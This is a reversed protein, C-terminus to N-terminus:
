SQNIIFSENVDGLELIKLFQEDTLLFSGWYRPKLGVENRLTNLVIRKPLALNYLLKVIYPYKKTRWFIKLEEQSFVSYKGCYSMFENENAFENIHKVEEVVTISTAVSSYNANKAKVDKTRYILIIDGKKYEMVQEIKTLYMKKISNMHSLDEYKFTKETRLKSDLFLRTHYEPWIGLLYKKNELNILPYATVPNSHHAFFDKIYVKEEGNKTIKKGHYCFGYEILLNILEQYEPFVTVYAESLNEDIMKDFILKIFREGLKTGHADIKFTGVKLRKKLPLAPVIDNLADEEIKLYLFGQIGEEGEFYYVKEKLIKKKEFWDEFENYNEKLSNFFPDELRVESFGVLKIENM